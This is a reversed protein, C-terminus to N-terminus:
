DNQHSTISTTREKDITHNKSRQGLILTMMVQKCGISWHVWAILCRDFMSKERGMHCLAVYVFYYLIMESTYIERLGRRYTYTYNGYFTYIYIYIHNYCAYTIWDFFVLNFHLLKYVVLLEFIFCWRACRFSIFLCLRM